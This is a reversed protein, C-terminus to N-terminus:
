AEGEKKGKKDPKKEETKPGIDKEVEETVKGSKKLKQAEDTWRTTRGKHKLTFTNKECKSSCFNVQTGDKFIFKKGTGQEIRRKCFDCRAM